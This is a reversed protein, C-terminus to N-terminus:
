LQSPISPRAQDIATKTTDIATKAQHYYDNKEINGLKNLTEIADNLFGFKIQFNVLVMLTHTKYQNNGNPYFVVDDIFTKFTQKAVSKVTNDFSDLYYDALHQVIASGISICHDPNLMRNLKSRVVIADEIFGCDIQAEALSQWRAGRLYYHEDSSEILTTLVEFVSKPSYTQTPDPSKSLYKAVACGFAVKQYTSDKIQTLDLIQRIKEKSSQNAKNLIHTIPLWDREETLGSNVNDDSIVYFVAEKIKSSDHIESTSNKNALSTTTTQASKQNIPHHATKDTAPPTSQATKQININGKTRSTESATRKKPFIIANTSLM